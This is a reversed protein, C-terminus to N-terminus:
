PAKAQEALLRDVLSPSVRGDRELGTKKQYHTVARHTKRGPQGDVPGAEYGLTNLVQQVYMVTPADAFPQERVPQFRGAWAEALEIMEPAMKAELAQRVVEAREHGARSALLLWRYGETRDLPLGLGRAHVLGYAYQAQRLGQHAAKGYWRAAWPLNKPAGRGGAYAEGLLHQAEPHGQRAAQSLLAVAKTEDQAVGEGEFSAKGLAYQARSDGRKAAREMWVMAKGADAKVGRGELYALGTEYAAAGHGKSAADRFGKFAEADAGRAHAALAERYLKSVRSASGAPAESRDSRAATEMGAEGSGEGAQGHLAPGESARDAGFLSALRGSADEYTTQLTDQVQACSGLVLCLSLAMATGRFPRISGSNRM